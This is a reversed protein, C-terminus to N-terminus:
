PWAFQPEEPRRQWTTNSSHVWRAASRWSITPCNASWRHRNVFVGGCRCMTVYPLSNTYYLYM